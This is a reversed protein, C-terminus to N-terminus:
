STVITFETVVGDLIRFARVPRPANPLLSVIFNVAGPYYAREIDRPSPANESHPHSHYIGLHELGADRMARFIHFLEEPAIEFETASGLVNPAPFVHSIMTDRGALLGCCEQPAHARAEALIHDLVERRVRVHEQM